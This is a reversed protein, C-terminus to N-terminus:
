RDKKYLSQINQLKCGTEREDRPRDTKREQCFKKREWIEVGGGDKLKNILTNTEGQRSKGTEKDALHTQTRRSSMLGWPVSQTLPKSVSLYVDVHIKDESFERM